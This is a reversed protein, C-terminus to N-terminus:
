KAHLCGSSRRVLLSFFTHFHVNVIKPYLTAAHPMPLVVQCHLLLISPFGLAASSCLAIVGHKCQSIDKNVLPATCVPLAHGALSPNHGYGTWSRPLSPACCRVTRKRRCSQCRWEAGCQTNHFLTCWINQQM